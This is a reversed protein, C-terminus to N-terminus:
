PLAMGCSSHKDVEKQEEWARCQFWVRLVHQLGADSMDRIDLYGGQFARYDPNNKLQWEITPNREAAHNILTQDRMKKDFAASNKHASDADSGLVFGLAMAPEKLQPKEALVANLAALIKSDVQLGEDAFSKKYRNDEAM